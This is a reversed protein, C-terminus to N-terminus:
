IRYTFKRSLSRSQGSIELVAFYDCILDIRFLSLYGLVAASFSMFEWGGRCTSVAAEVVACM